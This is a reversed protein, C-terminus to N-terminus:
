FLKLGINKETVTLITETGLVLPLNAKIHGAPFGFAVPFIYDRTHDRIIEEASKGYPVTNDNMDSMGGIILGSIQDLVGSLKLNMMMRDIHYLYEDLDEIFLISNQPLELYKTGTLSYIISLNGGILTGKAEGIRNYRHPDLQYNIKEGRLVELMKTFSESTQNLYNVPMTAHLTAVGTQSYIFAHLVTIDSYGVIWKPHKKFGNLNIKEIVRHTGYGGRALWIAKVNSDDLAKQLDNARVTDTGAFQHSQKFLNQGFSVKYDNSKLFGVAPDLEKRSIKRATSIIRIEDGKKLFPPIISKL